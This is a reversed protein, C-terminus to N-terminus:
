KVLTFNCTELAPILELSREIENGHKNETNVSHLTVKFPLKQEAKYTNYQKEVKIANLVVDPKNGWDVRPLRQTAPLANINVNMPQMANKLDQNSKYSRVHLSDWKLQSLPQLHLNNNNQPVMAIAVVQDLTGNNIRAVFVDQATNAAAVHFTGVHSMQLQGFLQNVEEM